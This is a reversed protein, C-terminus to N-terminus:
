VYDAASVIAYDEPHDEFRLFTQVLIASEHSVRLDIIQVISLLGNFQNRIYVFDFVHYEKRYIALTKPTKICFSSDQRDAELACVYCPELLRDCVSHDELDPDRFAM